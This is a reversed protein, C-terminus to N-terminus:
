SPVHTIAGSTQMAFGTRWGSIRLALYYALAEVIFILPELRLGIVIRDWDAMNLAGLACMALLACLAFRWAEDRGAIRIWRTLFGVLIAVGGAAIILLIPVVYIAYKADFFHSSRVLFPFSFPVAIWLGLLLIHRPKNTALGLGFLALWLILFLGGLGVYAQLVQAFFPLSFEAEPLEGLGVGGFEVMRGFLHQKFSPLWPM